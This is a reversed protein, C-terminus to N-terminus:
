SGIILTRLNAALLDLGFWNPDDEMLVTPSRPLTGDDLAITVPLCVRWDDYTARRLADDDQVGYHNRLWEIGESDEIFPLGREMARGRFVANSVNCLLVDFDGVEYRDNTAKTLHSRSKHCKVRFHPVKFRGRPKGLSFSGRVANKTEAKLRDGTRKYTLSVDEDYSGPQPNLNLKDVSWDRPDLVQKLVAAGIYETAKGRIMPLVKQDELIDLLNERPINYTDCYERIGAFIRYAEDNSEDSM